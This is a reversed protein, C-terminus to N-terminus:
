LFEKIEHNISHLSLYTKKYDVDEDLWIEGHRDSATRLVRLMKTCANNLNRAKIRRYREQGEVYIPGYGYLFGYTQMAM